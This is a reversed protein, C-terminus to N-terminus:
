KKQEMQDIITITEILKCIRENSPSLKNHKMPTPKTNITFKM